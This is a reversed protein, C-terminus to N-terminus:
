EFRLATISAQGSPKVTHMPLSLYSYSHQRNPSAKTNSEFGQKFVPIACTGLLNPNSVPIAESIM